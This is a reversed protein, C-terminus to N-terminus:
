RQQETKKNLKRDLGGRTINRKGALAKYLQVLDRGTRTAESLSVPRGLQKELIKQLRVYKQSDKVEDYM